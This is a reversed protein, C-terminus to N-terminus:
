AWCLGCHPKYPSLPRWAAARACPKSLGLASLVATIGLVLMPFSASNVLTVDTRPIKLSLCLFLISGALIVAYSIIDRNM